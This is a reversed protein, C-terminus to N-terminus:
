STTGGRRAVSVGTLGALPITVTHFDASVTGTTTTYVAAPDTIM